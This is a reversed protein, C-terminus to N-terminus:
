YNDEVTPLHDVRPDDENDRYLHDAGRQDWPAYDKGCMNCRISGVQAHDRGICFGFDHEDCLGPNVYCDGCEGPHAEVWARISAINERRIEDPTQEIRPLDLAVADDYYSFSM